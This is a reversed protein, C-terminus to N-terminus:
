IQSSATSFLKGHCEKCYAKSKHETFSGGALPNMCFACVFHEPHWKKDLANVCRGTIPKGCGACLSGSQQYYHTECYPRGNFEFFTGGIFSKGCHSCAFHEPHWQSGLANICDGKIPESCGACKPAFLAFFDSECYPRGDREFFTGGPFPKLCQTCIFHEVHWSKGLATIARDVVPKGCYGCPPCHLEQFCKDCFTNGKNEFFPKTGLPEKCNFCIFHEPHYTRGMAQIIEGLISQKCTFCTGRSAPNESDINNMQSTLNNLLKDLDDNSQVPPKDVPKPQVPPQMVSPPRPSEVPKPPQVPAQVVPPPKVPPDVTKLQATPPQKPVEAPKFAPQQRKSNRSSATLSEMLEDLDDVSSAQKAQSPAPAPPAAKVEVKPQPQAMVVPTPVPTQKATPAALDEMLDELENLDVRSSPPRSKKQSNSSKGRGLDELLSDL